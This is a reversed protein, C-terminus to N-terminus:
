GLHMIGSGDGTRVRARAARHEERSGFAGRTPALGGDDKMDHLVFALLLRVSARDTQRAARLRGAVGLRRTLFAVPRPNRAGARGTATTPTPSRGGNAAVLM